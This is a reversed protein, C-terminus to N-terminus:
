TAKKTGKKKGKVPQNQIYFGHIAPTQPRTPPVPKSKPPMKTMGLANGTAKHLETLMCEKFYREKKCNEEIVTTKRKLYLEFGVDNETSGYQKFYEKPITMAKKTNLLVLLDDADSYCSEVFKMKKLDAGIELEVVYKEADCKRGLLQVVFHVCPSTAFSVYFFLFKKNFADITHIRVCSKEAVFPISGFHWYKLIPQHSLHTDQLHAAFDKQLGNWGCRCHFRISINSIYLYYKM